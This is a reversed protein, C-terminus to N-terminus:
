ETSRLDILLLAYFVEQGSKITTDIVSRLIAFGAGETSRFAGSIKQIVKINRIARESSNNDPPVANHHLFCLIHRSIKRLKKQLRIALKDKDPM